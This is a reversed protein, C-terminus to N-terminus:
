ATEGGAKAAFAGEVSGFEKVTEDVPASYILKGQKLLSLRTCSKEVETLIHSSYVIAAGRKLHQDILERLKIIILPDLGNLPEDLILLDPSGLFAQALVIRKKM